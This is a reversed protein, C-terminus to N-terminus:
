FSTSSKWLTPNKRKLIIFWYTLVILQTVFLGMLVGALDWRMILWRATLLSFLAALVYGAFYHNNLLRVRLAIRVPIGAIILVYTGALGYMVYAYGAYEKGGSFELLPKAFIVLLILVPGILMTSKKGVNFLYRNFEVMKGQMLAAQPLAYNEIAQLVVNLLGFIYQALRLAGLAALGLWWGAAVVFLNGAFWQLLASMLMWRAQGAHLRIALRVAEACFWGPRVWWIGLAVSPLFTLGIIYCANVLTLRGYLIFVALLGLQLLNTLADISFARSTQGLTLLIKRLFDQELFLLTGIVAPIWIGFYGQLLAPFLIAALVSLLILSCFFIGQSYFVGRIYRPREDEDFRAIMVQAIGTSIAQQISLLFLQVLVLVSYKGFGTVGLARAIMINTVFSSGSVMAQDALVWVKARPVKAPQYSWRNSM